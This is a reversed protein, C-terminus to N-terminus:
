KIWITTRQRSNDNDGIKLVIPQAGSDVGVPVIANIQLVGAVYGVAAGVWLLKSSQGGITLSVPASPAIPDPILNGAYSALYSLVIAGDAFPFSWAGAGTAFLTIASGAPAPNAATNLSVAYPIRPDANLVVAPGTGSQNSTFVGPSTPVVPVTVPPSSTVQSGPALRSVVVEASGMPSVGYPVVCNIQSNSVYLLPAPIGNFTVRTNGLTVPYLGANNPDGSLPPTSLHSGFITVLVGPSILPQLTAAGVVQSISPTMYGVVTLTVTFSAIATPQQVPAFMLERQYVGPTMYPVVKPNLAVAVDEPAVGSSPSAILFDIDAEGANSPRAGVLKFPVKDASNVHAFAFGGLASFMTDAPAKTGVIYPYIYLPQAASTWSTM